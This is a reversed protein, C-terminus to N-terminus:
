RLFQDIADFSQELLRQYLQERELLAMESHKRETINHSITVVAIITGNADKVPSLSDSFWLTQNKWVIPSEERINEGTKVVYRVRKVIRDASGKDLIDFPTSGIIMEESVGYRASANFYLYRGEPDQMIILDESSDLLLRLREESSQLQNEANKRETIDRSIGLVSQIHNDVDKLPTLYHDFWRILGNFTLPGESRVPHGTEFVTQLAKKQSRAVDPPFILARPEGIIQNVSKNVLVSAYSNVYEVRDDM